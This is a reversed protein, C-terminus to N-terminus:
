LAFGAALPRVVARGVVAAGAVAAAVAGADAAVAVARRPAPAGVAAAALHPAHSLVSILNTAQSHTDVANRSLMISM